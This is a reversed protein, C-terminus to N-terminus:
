DSSFINYSQLRVALSPSSMMNKKFCRARQLFHQKRLIEDEKSLFPMVKNIYNKDSIDDNNLYLTVKAEPQLDPRGRYTVCDYQIYTATGQDFDNNRAVVYPIFKVTSKKQVGGSKLITESRDITSGYFTQTNQMFMSFREITKSTAMYHMMIHPILKKM